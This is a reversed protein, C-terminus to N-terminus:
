ESESISRSLKRRSAIAAPCLMPFMALSGSSRSLNSTASAFPVPGAAGADFPGLQAGGLSKMIGAERRHFLEVPTEKVLRQLSRDHGEPILAQQALYDSRERLGDAFEPPRTDHSRRVFVEEAGSQLNKESVRRSLKGDRGICGADDNGSWGALQVFKARNDHIGGGRLDAPVRGIQAGTQGRRFDGTRGHLVAGQGHGQADNIGLVIRIQRM